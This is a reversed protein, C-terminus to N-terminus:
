QDSEIVMYCSYRMYNLQVQEHRTLADQRSKAAVM